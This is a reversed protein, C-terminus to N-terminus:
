TCGCTEAVMAPVEEFMIQQNFDFYIMSISSMKTPSCCPRKGTSKKVMHAHPYMPLMIEQCEGTCYYARFRKPAIIWNWSFKEFDVTLEYRCCRREHSYPDCDLGARRKARRKNGTDHTFVELFPKKAENGETVLSLSGDNGEIEFEVGLNKHPERRWERLLKKVKFHYWGSQGPRIPKTTVLEKEPIGETVPFVRKYLKIQPDRNTSSANPNRKVFVDLTAKSIRLRSAKERFQFFCCKASHERIITPAKEPFMIITKTKAHYNDEHKVRSAALEANRSTELLRLLPPINPIKPDTLNPAFPLGLKDLIQQQIAQLRDQKLNEM